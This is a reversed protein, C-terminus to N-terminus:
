FPKTCSSAAGGAAAGDRELTLICAVAAGAALRARAAGGNGLTLEKIANELQTRM